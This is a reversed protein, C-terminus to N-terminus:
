IFRISCQDVEGGHTLRRNRDLCPTGVLRLGLQLGHIAHAIHGTRVRNLPGKSLKVAATASKLLYAFALGPNSLMTLVRVVV